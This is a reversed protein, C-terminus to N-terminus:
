PRRAMASTSPQPSPEGDEIGGAEDLAGWIVIVVDELNTLVENNWFRIVRMGSAILVDSRKQDYAEKELHQGGDLEIALKAEPCYFDLIYTRFLYQRRFKAGCVQRNRLIKWLLQEANTSTQRLVKCRAILVQYTPPM